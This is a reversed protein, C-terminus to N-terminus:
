WYPIAFERQKKVEKRWNDGIGDGPYSKMKVGWLITSFHEKPYQLFRMPLTLGRRKAM